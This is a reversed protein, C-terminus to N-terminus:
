DEFIRELCIASDDYIKLICDYEKLKKINIDEQMIRCDCHENDKDNKNFKCQLCKSNKFYVYEPFDLRDSDCVALQLEDGTMGRLIDDTIEEGTSDIFKYDKTEILINTVRRSKSEFYVIMNGLSNAIKCYPFEDLDNETIIYQSDLTNKIKEVSFDDLDITTNCIELAKIYKM